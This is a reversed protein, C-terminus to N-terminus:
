KKTVWYESIEAIEAKIKEGMYTAYNRSFSGALRLRYITEGGIDVEQIETFYSAGNLVRRVEDVKAKDKLAMLQVTFNGFEPQNFQRNQSQNQNSQQQQTSSTAPINTQKTQTTTKQPEVLRAQQEQFTYDLEEAIEQMNSTGGQQDFSLTRTNTEKKKLLDCSVLMLMIIILLIALKKM